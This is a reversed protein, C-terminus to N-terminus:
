IRPWRANCSTSARGTARLGSGCRRTTQTPRSWCLTANSLASVSAGARTTSSHRRTPRCVTPACSKRSSRPCRANLVSRPSSPCCTPFREAAETRIDAALALAGRRGDRAYGSTAFFLERNEGDFNVVLNSADGFGGGTYIRGEAIPECVRCRLGHRDTVEDLLGQVAAEDAIATSPLDMTSRVMYSTASTATFAIPALIALSVQLLRPLPWPRLRPAAWLALPVMPLAVWDTLDVTRGVTLPSITNLWEILPSAYATKWFAFAGAIAVGGLRRHNPALTAVFLTLAFLGAFDSVKGTLTNHFLAKFVFDNLVLAALVAVFAPSALAALRDSDRRMRSGPVM